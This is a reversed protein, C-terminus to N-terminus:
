PFPQKRGDSRPAYDRYTVETRTEEEGRFIIKFRADTLMHEPVYITRDPVLRRYRIRWSFGKVKAILKIRTPSDLLLRLERVFPESSRDDVGVLMALRDAFAAGDGQLMGEPVRPFRFYALEEDGDAPAAVPVAQAADLESVTYAYMVFTGDAGRHEPKMKKAREPPELTLITWAADPPADPDFREVLHLRLKGNVSVTTERVFGAPAHLAPLGDRATEGDGKKGRLRQLVAEIVAKQERAAAIAEELAARGREGTAAWAPLIRGVLMGAILTVAAASMWARTRSGRVMAVTKMM